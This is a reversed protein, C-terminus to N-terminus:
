NTSDYKATDVPVLRLSISRLIISLATDPNSIVDVTDMPFYGKKTVIIQNVYSEESPFTVTGSSNTKLEQRAQVENTLEVSANKVANGSISDTVVITYRVPIRSDTDENQLCATFFLTCIALYAIFPFKLIVGSIKPDFTTFYGGM